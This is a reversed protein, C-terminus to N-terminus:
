SDHVAGNDDIIMDNYNKAAYNPNYYPSETFVTLHSFMNIRDIVWGTSGKAPVMSTVSAFDLPYKFKHGVIVSLLAQFTSRHSVIAVRHYKKTIANLSTHVREQMSDWTELSLVGGLPTFSRDMANDEELPTPDLDPVAKRNNISLFEGFAPEVVYKIGLEEAIFKATQTARYFPSSVIIDLNEHKLRKALDKAQQIGESSLPPDHPYKANPVWTLDTYDLRFGHRCLFVCHRSTYYDHVSQLLKILSSIGFCFYHDIGAKEDIVSKQFDLLHITPKQSANDIADYILMLSVQKFQVGTFTNAITLLENLQKILSPLVEYRCFNEKNDKLYKKVTSYLDDWSFCANKPDSISGVVKFGFPQQEMKSITCTQGLKIDLVKPNTYGETLDGMSIFVTDNIEVKGHYEPLFKKLETGQLFKLVKPETPNQLPKLLGDKCTIINGSFGKYIHKDLPLTSNHKANFREIFDDDFSLDIADSVLKMTRVFPIIRMDGDSSELPISDFDKCMNKYATGFYTWYESGDNKKIPFVYGYVQDNLIIQQKCEGEKMRSYHITFDIDTGYKKAIISGSITIVNNINEVKTITIEADIDSVLWNLLDIDHILEISLCEEVNDIVPNGPYIMEMKITTVNKAEEEQSNSQDIYDKASQFQNDFRKYFAPLVVTHYQKVLEMVKDWNMIPVQCLLKKKQPILDLLESM